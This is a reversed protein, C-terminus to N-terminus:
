LLLWITTKMSKPQNTGFKARCMFLISQSTKQSNIQKSSKFIENFFIDGSRSSYSDFVAMEQTSVHGAWVLAEEDRGEDECQLGPFSTVGSDIMVSVSHWAINVTNSQHHPHKLSIQSRSFMTQNPTPIPNVSPAPIPSMRQMSCHYPTPAGFGPLIDSKGMLNATSAEQQAFESIRTHGMVTEVPKEPVLKSQAELIVHENSMLARDQPGTAQTNPQQINGHCVSNVSSFGQEEVHSAQKESLVIARGTNMLNQLDLNNRLAQRRLSNSTWTFMIHDKIEKAPDSFECTQSLHRLRIHYSDLSEDQKQKAQRFNFVEFAVNTQPAFYQNVM